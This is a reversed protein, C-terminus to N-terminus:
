ILIRTDGHSKVDNVRIVLAGSSALLFRGNELWFENIHPLLDSASHLIEALDPPTLLSSNRVGNLGIRPAPLGGGLDLVAPRVQLSNLLEVLDCIGNRFAVITLNSRLHVHVCRLELSHRRLLDLAIVADPGIM